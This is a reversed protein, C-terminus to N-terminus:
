HLAPPAPVASYGHASPSGVPRRTIAPGKPSNTIPPLFGSPQACTPEVFAPSDLRLKIVNRPDSLWHHNDLASLNEASLDFTAIVARRAPNAIYKM